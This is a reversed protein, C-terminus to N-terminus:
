SRLHGRSIYELGISALFTANTRMKSGAATECIRRARREGGDRRRTALGDPWQRALNCLRDYHVDTSMVAAGCWAQAGM